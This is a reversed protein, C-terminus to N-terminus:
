NIIENEFIVAAYAEMYLKHFKARFEDDLRGNDDARIINVEVGERTIVIADGDVSTSYTNVQIEGRGITEVVTLDSYIDYKNHETNFSTVIRRSM